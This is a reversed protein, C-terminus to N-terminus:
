SDKMYFVGHAHISFPKTTKNKFIVEVTDGVEARIVLVLLGM